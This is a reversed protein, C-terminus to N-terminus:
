FPPDEVDPSFPLEDNQTNYTQQKIYEIVYDNYRNILYNRAAARSTVTM